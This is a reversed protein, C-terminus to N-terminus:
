YHEVDARLYSVIPVFGLCLHKDRKFLDPFPKLANLAHAPM